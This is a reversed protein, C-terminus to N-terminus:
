NRGGCQRGEVGDVDALGSKSGGRLWSAAAASEATLRVDCARRAEEKWHRDLPGQGVDLIEGMESREKNGIMDLAYM